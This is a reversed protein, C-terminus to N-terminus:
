SAERPGRSILSLPTNFAMVAWGRVGIRYLGWIKLRTATDDSDLWRELETGTMNVVGDFDARTAGDGEVV